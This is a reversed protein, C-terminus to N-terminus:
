MLLTVNRYTVIPGDCLALLLVSIFACRKEACQEFVGFERCANTMSAISESLESAEVQGGKVVDM